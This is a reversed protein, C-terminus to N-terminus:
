VFIFKKRYWIWVGKLNTAYMVEEKDIILVGCSWRLLYSVIKDMGWLIDILDQGKM